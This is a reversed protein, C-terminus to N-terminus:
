VCRTSVMTARIRSPRRASARVSRVPGSASPRAWAAVLLRCSFRARLLCPALVLTSPATPLAAEAAMVAQIAMATVSSEASAAARNPQNPIERGIVRIVSAIPERAPPSAATATGPRPRPSSIPAMAAATCTNLSLRIRVRVRSSSVRAARAPASACRRAAARARASSKWRATPPMTPPTVAAAVSSWAVAPAMVALAVRVAPCDLVTAADAPSAAEFTAVTAAAASSSPAETCSIPRCTSPEAVSACAATSSAPCVAVRTRSRESEAARIPSTTAIIAVIAPCVLRSASLAVISAARAPSAPRPKATTAASTLSSALWVARAVSSM